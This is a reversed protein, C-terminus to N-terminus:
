IQLQFNKAPGQIPARYNANQLCCLSHSESSSIESIQRQFLLFYEQFLLSHQNGVNGRQGVLNEFTRKKMTILHELAQRDIHAQSGMVLRWIKSQDLNFFIASSMQFHIQFPFYTGYQTSFM